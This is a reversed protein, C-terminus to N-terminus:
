TRQGSISRRGFVFSQQFFQHLSRMLTAQLSFWEGGM